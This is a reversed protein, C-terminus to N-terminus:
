QQASCHRCRYFTKGRVTVPQWSHESPSACQPLRSNHATPRAEVLKARIVAWAEGCRIRTCVSTRADLIEIALKLTMRAMYLIREELPRNRVVNALHVGNGGRVRIVALLAVLAGVPVTPV